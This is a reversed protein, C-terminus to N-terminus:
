IRGGGGGQAFHWCRLRDWSVSRRPRCHRLRGTDLRTTLADAIDDPVTAFPRADRLMAARLEMNPEARLPTLREAMLWAEDADFAQRTFCRRSLMTVRAGRELAWLTVHAASMGSGVVILEHDDLPTHDLDLQEIHQVRPHARLSVFPKPWVESRPNTAVVLSECLIPGGSTSVTWLEGDFTANTARAPHVLSNLGFSSATQACFKRFADASPRRYPGFHEGAQLEHHLAMDNPHPHHVAPSRLWRAGQSAMRRDWEALWRGAPDVVMLEQRLGPSRDILEAAIALGHPGAGIIM